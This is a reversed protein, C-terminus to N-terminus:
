RMTDVEMGGTGKNVAGEGGPVKVLGLKSLIWRLEVLGLGVWGLRLRM